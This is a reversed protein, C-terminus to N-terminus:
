LDFKIVYRDYGEAMSKALGGAGPSGIEVWIALELHM